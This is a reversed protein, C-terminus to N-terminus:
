TNVGIFEWNNVSSTYGSVAYRQGGVLVDTDPGGLEFDGNLTLGLAGRVTTAGTGLQVITVSGSLGLPITVVNASSSTMEVIGGMDSEQVTYTTGTQRNVNITGEM